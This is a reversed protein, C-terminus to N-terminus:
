HFTLNCHCIQNVQCVMLLYIACLTEPTQAEVPDSLSVRTSKLARAFNSYMKVSYKHTYIYPMATTLAVAAADLAKNTGLRRPIQDVFNGYISLDFRTDKVELMSIFNSTIVSAKNSPSVPVVGQVTQHTPSISSGQASCSTDMFKFRQLGAGV